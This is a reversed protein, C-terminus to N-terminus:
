QFCLNPYHIKKYIKEFFEISMQKIGPYKISLNDLDKWSLKYHVQSTLESYRSDEINGIASLVIIHIYKEDINFKGAFFLILLCTYLSEISSLIAIIRSKDNKQDNNEIEDIIELIQNAIQNLLQESNIIHLINTVPFLLQRCLDYSNIICSEFEQLKHAQNKYNISIWNLIFKENEKIAYFLFQLKKDQSLIRFKLNQEM